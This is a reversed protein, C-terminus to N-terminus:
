RCRLLAPRSSGESKQAERSACACGAAVPARRDVDVSGGTFVMSYKGPAGERGDIRGYVQKAHPCITITAYRLNIDSNPHALLVHQQRQLLAGDVIRHSTTSQDPGLWSWEEFALLNLLRAYPAGQRHRKMAM